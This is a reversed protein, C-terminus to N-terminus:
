GGDKRCIGKLARWEDADLLVPGTAGSDQDRLREVREPTLPHDRLLSFAAGDPENGVLRQLLEGMPRTPRGLRRMVTIAFGDAGAEIDRSYAANLVMRATFLGAGAGSVDGFLLGALFASGGDRVIKRLGDRHSLHGLEHALVGGLEDPSRARDIMPSLIYVRGGPLAFANPVGSRLVVTNPNIPLQAAIQLTTILKGLAAVGDPRTCESRGFVLRIQGDFADGIPREWAMPMTEAVMDALLPVGFWITTIIVAAAAVSWAAIKGFAIPQMAGKGDLRHCRELVNHRSTADALELRALAPATVCALRMREGPGTVLRIDAYDWTAVTAGTEQILLADAFRLAVTRRRNTEGDFYVHTEGDSM